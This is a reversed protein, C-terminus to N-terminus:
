FFKLFIEHPFPIRLWLTFIIYLFGVFGVIILAALKKKTFGTYYFIFILFIITSTYFGLYSLSFIYIITALIIVLLTSLLIEKSSEEKNDKRKAEKGRSRVFLLISLFAILILLIRSLLMAEDSCSFSQFYLFIVILVLFISIVRNANKM